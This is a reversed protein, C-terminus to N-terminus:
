HQLCPRGSLGGIAGTEQDYQVRKVNFGFEGTEYMAKLVVSVTSLRRTELLVHCISGMIQNGILVMMSNLSQRASSFYRRVSGTPSGLVDLLRTIESVTSPSDLLGEFNATRAELNTDSLLLRPEVQRLFLRLRMPLISEARLRAALRHTFLHRAFAVFMMDIQNRAEAVQKWDSSLLGPEQYAESVWSTNINNKFPIRFVLGLLMRYMYQTYITHEILGFTAFATALNEVASALLDIQPPSLSFNVALNAPKTWERLNSYCGLDDLSAIMRTQRNSSLSGPCNAFRNFSLQSVNADFVYSCPLYQFPRPSLGRCRLTAKVWTGGRRTHLWESVYRDLAGRLITFYVLRRPREHGELKNLMRPVCERLETFDAHLGCRWGVSYRSFLWVDQDRYCRCFKVGRKCNCPFGLVGDKTLASEVFTGGTKQIHVFVLVVESNFEPYFFTYSKSFPHLVARHSEFAGIIHARQVYWYLLICQTAVLFLVRYINTFNSFKTLRVM